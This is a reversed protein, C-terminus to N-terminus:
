NAYKAAATDATSIVEFIIAEHGALWDTLRWGSKHGFIEHCIQYSEVAWKYAMNPQKTQQTQAANCKPASKGMLMVFSHREKTQLDTTATM